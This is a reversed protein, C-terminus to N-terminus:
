SRGFRVFVSRCDHAIGTLAFFAVVPARELELCQNLWIFCLANRCMAWGTGRAGYVTTQGIVWIGDPYNYITCVADAINQRAPVINCVTDAFDRAPSRAM